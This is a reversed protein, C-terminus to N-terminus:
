CAEKHNDIWAQVYVRVLERKDAVLEVGFDEKLLTTIEDKKLRNISKRFDEMHKHHVPEESNDASLYNGMNILFEPFTINYKEEVKMRKFLSLFRGELSNAESCLVGRVKGNEHCHDLCGTTIPYGTIACCGKQNSLREERFSKVESPNRLWDEPLTIDKAPTKRRKRRKTTTM